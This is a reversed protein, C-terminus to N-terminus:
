PGEERSSLIEKLRARARHIKVRVNAESIGVIGAIDKYSFDSSVALSLVDRESEPLQKMARIVARYTERIMVEKEPDSEDKIDEPDNAEAGRKARRWTDMLQNRAITFVLSVNLEKTGYVSLMRTFSEQLIDSSLSYDGTLRMLYGFVKDKNDIYFQKFTDM